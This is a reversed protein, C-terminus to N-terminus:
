CAVGSGSGRANGRVGRGGNRGGRGSSTVIEPSADSSDDSSSTNGDGRIEAYNPAVEAATHKPQRVLATAGAAVPVTASGAAESEKGQTGGGDEGAGGAPAGASPSGPGRAATGNGEELDQADSLPEPVSCKM